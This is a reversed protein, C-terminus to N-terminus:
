KIRTVELYAKTHTGDKVEWAIQFRFSGVIKGTLGLSNLAKNLEVQTLPTKGEKVGQSIMKALMSSATRM